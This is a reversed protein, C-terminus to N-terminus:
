EVFGYFSLDGLGDQRPVHPVEKEQLSISLKLFPVYPLGYVDELPGRSQACSGKMQM